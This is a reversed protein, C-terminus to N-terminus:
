GRAVASRGAPATGARAARVGRLAVYAAFALTTVYFGVPYISFYALALAAWVIALALAVSLALSPLPRLTVQQAAAGPAILVALVLLAGTLQSTAAIALGLILVFAGDLLRVPIGRARALEADISCLLLPRALAALAALAAAAVAVLAVVQGATIGLFTGFLLTEPGGLISRDLALFLFGTALGVAQVTGVAAADAGKSRRRANGGGIAVAALVCAIYYGLAMPLGVLLAGSAGPFAMVSLTHSAFAQRRVVVYWGVTGSLVAVITGAALAHVMFPFELLRRLDTIPDPSLSATM